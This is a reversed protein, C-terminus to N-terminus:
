SSSHNPCDIWIDWDSLYKAIQPAASDDICHIQAAKEKAIALYKSSAHTLISNVEEMYKANCLKKNSGEVHTLFLVNIM